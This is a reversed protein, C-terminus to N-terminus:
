FTVYGPGWPLTLMPERWVLALPAPHLLQLLYSM